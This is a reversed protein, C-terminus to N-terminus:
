DIDNDSLMMSLLVQKDDGSLKFEEKKLLCNATIQNDAKIPNKDIIRFLEILSDINPCYGLVNNRSFEVNADGNYFITKYGLNISEIGSYGVFDGITFNIFYGNQISQPLENYKISRKTFEIRDSVRLLDALRVINQYISVNLIDGIFLIKFSQIQEQQLKYALFVLDFFSNKDTAIRAVLNIQIM